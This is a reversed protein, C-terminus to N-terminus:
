LVAAMARTRPVARTVSPRSIVALTEKTNNPEINLMRNNDVKRVELVCNEM